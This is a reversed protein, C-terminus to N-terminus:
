RRPLHVSFMTGGATPVIVTMLGRVSPDIRSLMELCAARGRASLSGSMQVDLRIHRRLGSATLTLGVDSGIHTLATDIMLTLLAKVQGCNWRGRSDGFARCSIAPGGAIRRQDAIECCVDYLSVRPGEDNAPQPLDRSATAFAKVADAVLRAAQDVRALTELGSETLEGSARLAGTSYSISATSNVVSHVLTGLSPAAPGEGGSGGDLEGGVKMDSM